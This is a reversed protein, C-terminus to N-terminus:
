QTERSGFRAGMRYAAKRGVRGLWMSANPQRLLLRETATFDDADIEFDASNIDIAIFKGDDESRLRTASLQDFIQQGRNGVRERETQDQRTIM